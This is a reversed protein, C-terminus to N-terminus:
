GPHPAIRIEIRRNRPENMGDGTAIRLHSTGLGAASIRRADVGAARLEAAVADAHKQSIRVSEDQALRTDTYGSIWILTHDYHRLAAALAQLTDRADGSLTDGRAFLVDSRLDVVLTDGPRAVPTGRLIRRLDHEMGDMYRGENAAVLPGATGAAYSPVPRPPKTQPAGPHSPPATTRPPPAEISYHVQSQCAALSLLLLPVAIKKTHM